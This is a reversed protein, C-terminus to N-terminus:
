QWSLSGKLLLILVYVLSELDDSRSQEVGLHTNISVYRVTGTLKRGDRYPIHQHNKNNKYLKSLGFDILYIINSKEGQGIIFNEPKIDRHVYHFKHLYEIRNIM